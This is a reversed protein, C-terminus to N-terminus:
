VQTSAGESRKLLDVVIQHKTVRPAEPASETKSARRKTAPNRPTAAETM